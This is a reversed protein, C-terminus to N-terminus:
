KIMVVEKNTSYLSKVTIFRNFQNTSTSLEKNIAAYSYIIWGVILEKNSEQLKVFIIDKLWIM